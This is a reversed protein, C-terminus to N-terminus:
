SRPPYIGQLAIIYQLGLAPPRNEHPQSAPAGSAAPAYRGGAAPVAGLARNTTAPQTSAPLGHAPLESEVLTVSSTGSAEGLDRRSLGPGQGQGIPVRGRLDPLAFTVRGDGGYTTGLLSFLATNQQISVLQGNCFAWGRPAFNGAFLRIEAVFPDSMVAEM